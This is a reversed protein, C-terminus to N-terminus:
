AIGKVRGGEFAAKSYIRRSKKLMGILFSQEDMNYTNEPLISFKDLKRGLLEFYLKYFPGQDVKHPALDIPSLYGSK